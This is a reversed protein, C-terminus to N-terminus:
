QKLWEGVQHRAQRLRAHLTSLKCGLAQAQQDCTGRKVYHQVLTDSLRVSLAAIAEHTRREREHRSGSQMVPLRGVSTGPHWSSHLVNVSPFGGSAGGTSVWQAWERLRVDIIDTAQSIM